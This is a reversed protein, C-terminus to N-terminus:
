FKFLQTMWFYVMMASGVKGFSNDASVGLFGCQASQHLVIEALAFRYLQSLFRIVSFHLSWCLSDLFM